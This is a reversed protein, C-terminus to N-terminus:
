WGLARAVREVVVAPTLMIEKALWRVIRYGLDRLLQEREKELVYADASAYKVAGDVEGILKTEEWLFDPFVSGRPTRIEAQVRPAPIGALHLHGASLSEAASERAPDALSLAPTLRTARVTRAAQEYLELAARVLRPNAYDRRRVGSVMSACTLRAAADVIVLAEPLALDAGLDVATRPATTMRYGEADRRVQDPPLPGTHHVALPSRASNGSPPLTVSVVGDEWRDFGPTPLGLLQAASGHSIVAEPHVAIEARARSIHQGAADEPWWAAGVYVGRRVQVLDGSTLRTRLMRASVGAALLDGRATPQSPLVWPTPTRVPVANQVVRGM